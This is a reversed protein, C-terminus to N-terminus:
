AQTQQRNKTIQKPFNFQKKVFSINVKKTFLLSFESFFHFFRIKTFLFQRLDNRRCNTM